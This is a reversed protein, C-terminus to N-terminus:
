IHKTIAGIWVNRLHNHCDITQVIIDSGYESDSIAKENAVETMHTTLKSRLLRAPNCIGTTIEGGKVMKSIDFQYSEPIDHAADPGFEAKHIAKWRDLLRSIIMSRPLPPVM